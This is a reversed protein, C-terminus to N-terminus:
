NAFTPVTVINVYRIGDLFVDYDIRRGNLGPSIKGLLREKREIGITKKKALRKLMRCLPNNLVLVLSRSKTAVTENSRLLYNELCDMGAADITFKTSPIPCLEM